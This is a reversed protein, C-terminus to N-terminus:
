KKRLDFFGRGFVYKQAGRYYLFLLVGNSLLTTYAAGIVGYIPIFVINLAVNIVAVVLMYKVKMRMHEQTVLTAGVSFALFTIPASLALVKLVGISMEYQAGFILDIMVSSIGWLFLATILGLILMAYNGIRYVEFLQERSSNAWRHMKPLFFKQYVVGPFLYVAAMVTFGVNYIGAEADGIYYKILIIDSQYYVLHSLAAVGFPWASMLVASIAPAAKNDNSSMVPKAGHGRLFFRGRYMADVVYLGTMFFLLSVVAYISGVNLVDFGADIIFFLLILMVLRTFHPLFQWASLKFYQEELQYRGSVLELALQGLVYFSLIIILEKTISDHPGGWAWGYLILLASLTTIFVSKFSSPFWRVATWGEEGFAKLWFQAVGFGALPVVLLVMAMASSFLGFEDANLQRALLVQTFFACAAGGISGLWLFSVAKVAKVLSM